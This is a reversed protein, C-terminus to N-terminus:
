KRLAGTGPVPRGPGAPVVWTCNFLGAADVAGEAVAVRGDEGDVDPVVATRELLGGAAGAVGGGAVSAGAVSAAGAGCAGAMAGSEGCSSVCNEVPPLGGDLLRARDGPEDEALGLSDAGLVGPPPPLDRASQM